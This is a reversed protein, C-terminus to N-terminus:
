KTNMLHIVPPVTWAKLGLNRAEANTNQGLATSLKMRM